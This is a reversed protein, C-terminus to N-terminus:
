RDEGTTRGTAVDFEFIAPILMAATAFGYTVITVLFVALPARLIFSTIVYFTAFPAAFSALAIAPSPNRAGLLVYLGIGGGVMFALFPQLQVHFAGSFAIIMRMCTAIGIFLFLVTGLSVSVATRSNAYTMGVHIGLVAVFLDMVALGAVLYSLNEGTIAGAGYMYACLLMPLVVMEKTNYLVGGLKGFIFEKPTLDTVLLLDLTRGDRENTLSTVALANILLLSVVFLPVLPRALPPIVERAGVDLEGSIVMGHLLLAAAAFLVLYAVRVLLVKRGYAWTRLERWLIASDWVHRVKGPAQHVSRQEGGSAAQEPRRFVSEVSEVESGGSRRERSPNWVRVRAIAVANLLVAAGLAFAVFLITSEGLAAFWNDEFVAPQSAALIAQWPSFATAWRQAAIGGLADGLVGAAVAEWAALWAVLALLTLSLTQFTKDRWLAITSGLSGAALASALTVAFARGVQGYSIGGLLTFLMFCPVAAVLMVLVGLLSALLKGLVLESNNLNTMLLLILTRRDKERSVASATLLAAFLTALALQLPALIQFLLIGFRAFDGVNRVQQNGAVILWATWMLVWLATVYAARSGFLWYRRPVTVAERTFVPGVLM